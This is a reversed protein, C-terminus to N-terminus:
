WLQRIGIILNLIIKQLDKNVLITVVARFRAKVKRKIIKIM